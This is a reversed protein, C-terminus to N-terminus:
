LAVCLVVCDGKRETCRTGLSIISGRNCGDARVCIEDFLVMLSYELLLECKCKWSEWGQGM